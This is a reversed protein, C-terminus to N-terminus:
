NRKGLLKVSLAHESKEHCFNRNEIFCFIETHGNEFRNEKTKNKRRIQILMINYLVQLFFTISKNSWFFCSKKTLGTDFQYIYFNYLINECLLSIPNLYGFSFRIKRSSNRAILIVLFNVYM